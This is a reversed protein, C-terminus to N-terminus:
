RAADSHPDRSWRLTPAPSADNLVLVSTTAPSRGSKWVAAVAGTRARLATIAAKHIDLMASRGISPKM